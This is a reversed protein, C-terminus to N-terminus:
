RISPTAAPGAGSLLRSQHKESYSLAEPQQQADRLRAAFSVTQGGHAQEAVKQGREAAPAQGQEPKPQLSNQPKEQGTAKEKPEISRGFYLGQPRVGDRNIYLANQKCEEWANSFQEPDMAPFGQMAAEQEEPTMEAFGKGAAKEVAIGQEPKLALHVMFIETPAVEEKKLQKDKLLMIQHHATGELASDLKREHLVNRVLKGTLVGVVASFVGAVINSPDQVDEPPTGPNVKPRAWASAFVGGMMGTVAAATHSIVRIPANVKVVDKVQALVPNLAFAHEYDTQKLQDKAVGLSDAIEPSYEKGIEILTKLEARRTAVSDWGSSSLAGFASVKHRGRGWTGRIGQNVPNDAMNGARFGRSPLWVM